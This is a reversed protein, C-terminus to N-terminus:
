LFQHGPTHCFNWRYHFHLPPNIMGILCYALSLTRFWTYFMNSENPASFMQPHGTTLAEHRRFVWGGDGNLNQLIAPLARQLSAQIDDIRYDTLRSFRVLLDISDIDECASSNWQVGYGGLINQTKLVNDIIREIHHIPRHDYFYLLWFHYGAQVGLSLEMPTEFRHGYLGTKPDQHSDLVEFLIELLVGAIPSNQYDRAYQLMVGINQLENSTNDVNASWDRSCLYERFRDKNKFRELYYIEERAPKDYLALAMLAHLTLHRWGWWDMREAADCAIVPDRFLGDDSQFRLVLELEGNTQEDHQGYLHKLLLAALTAYLVPKTVSNSYRYGIFEGNRTLRTMTLYDLSLSRIDFITVPQRLDYNVYGSIRRIRVLRVDIKSLNRRVLSYTRFLSKKVFTRTKIVLKVPMLCRLSIQVAERWAGNALLVKLFRVTQSFSFIIAFGNIYKLDRPSAILMEPLLRLSAEFEKKAEDSWGWKLYDLMLFLHHRIISVSKLRQYKPAMMGDFVLDIVPFFRNSQNKPLKRATQRAERTAVLVKPLRAFKAGCKACRIWYEWDETPALGDRILGSRQIIRRRAMIAHVAFMNGLLLDRLYDDSDPAVITSMKRGQDDIRDWSTHVIDVEPYHMLYSVTEEIFNPYLLDDGDLINFFEGCAVELGRNRAKAVGANAQTIVRMRPDKTAVQEILELSKDTSGDNIAIVEINDYTQKLASQLTQLVYSQKNYITIIISVLPERM